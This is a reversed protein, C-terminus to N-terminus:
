GDDCFVNCFNLRVTRSEATKSARVRACPCRRTLVKVFFLSVLYCKNLGTEQEGDKSTHMKRFIQMFSRADRWVRGPLPAVTWVRWAM